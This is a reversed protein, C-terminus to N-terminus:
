FLLGEWLSLKVWAWFYMFLYSHSFVCANKSLSFWTQQLDPGFRGPGDSGLCFHCGAWGKPERVKPGLPSAAGCLHWWDRAQVASSLGWIMEVWWVWQVTRWLVLGGRDGVDTTPSVTLKELKPFFAIETPSVNKSIMFLINQNWPITFKINFHTFTHVLLNSSINHLWPLLFWPLFEPQM